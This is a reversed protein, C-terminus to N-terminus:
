SPLPPSPLPSSPLSFLEVDRCSSGRGSCRVQSLLELPAGGGEALQLKSLDLEVGADRLVAPCVLAPSSVVERGSRVRVWLFMSHLNCVKRQVPGLSQPPTALAMAPQHHPRPLFYTPHILVPNVHFTQLSLPRTWATGTATHHDGVLAQTKSQSRTAMTEVTIQLPVM